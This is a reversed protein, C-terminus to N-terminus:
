GATSAMILFAEGLINQEARLLVGETQLYMMTDAIGQLCKYYLHFSIMDTNGMMIVRRPLKPRSLFQENTDRSGLVSLRLNVIKSDFDM